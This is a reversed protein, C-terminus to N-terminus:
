FAGLSLRQRNARGRHVQSRLAIAMASAVDENSGVVSTMEEEVLSGGRLWGHVM